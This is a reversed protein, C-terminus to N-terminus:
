FEPNFRPARSSPLNVRPLTDAIAQLPVSHNEPLEWYPNTDPYDRRRVQRSFTISHEFHAPRMSVRIDVSEADSSIRQRDPSFGVLQLRSPSPVVVASDTLKALSSHTNVPSLSVSTPFTLEEGGSESASISIRHYPIVVESRQAPYLFIEARLRMNRQNSNQLELKLVEIEPDEIKQSLLQLLESRGAPGTASGYRWPVERAGGKKGGGIVYPPNDSDFLFVGITKSGFLLFNSYALDPAHGYEFSARLSAYWDGVEFPQIGPFTRRDVGFLVLVPHWRAANALGALQSAFDKPPVVQSKLEIHSTEFAERGSIHGLVEFAWADAFPKQMFSHHVPASGIM